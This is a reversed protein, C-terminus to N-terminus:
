FECSEHGAAAAEEDMGEPKPVRALNRWPGTAAGRLDARLVRAAQLMLERAGHSRSSEPNM